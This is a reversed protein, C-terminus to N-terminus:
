ILEEKFVDAGILSSYGNGLLLDFYIGIYVDKEFRTNEYTITVKDPKIASLMGHPNGLSYFPVMVIKYKSIKRLLLDDTLVRGKNINELFIFDDKNIVDKFATSEVVIVDKGTIPEKLLNGSDVLGKVVIKKDNLLIEIDCIKKKNSWLKNLNKSLYVVLLFGFSFSIILIAAPIIFINEDRKIYINKLKNNLFCSVGYTIGGYMFTLIYFYIIVKLRKKLGGKICLSIMLFSVSINLICKFYVNQIYFYEFFTYIGGIMGALICSLLKVKIKLLYFLSILLILNLLTNEILFVDLYIVM